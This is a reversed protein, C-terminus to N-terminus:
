CAVDRCHQSGPASCSRAAHRQMAAMATTRPRVVPRYPAACDSRVAVPVLAAGVRQVYSHLAIAPTCAGGGLEAALQMLQRCGPYAALCAQPDDAGGQLRDTGYLVALKAQGTSVVGQMSSLFVPSLFV